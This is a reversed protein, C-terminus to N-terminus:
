RKRAVAPEVHSGDTAVRGQVINFHELEGRWYQQFEHFWDLRLNAHVLRRHLGTKVLAGLLYLRVLSGLRGFPGLGDGSRASPDPAPLKADQDKLLAAVDPRADDYLNVM